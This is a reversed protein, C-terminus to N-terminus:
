YTRDTTGAASANKGSCSSLGEVETVMMIAREREGGEGNRGPGKCREQAKDRLGIVLHSRGSFNVDEV